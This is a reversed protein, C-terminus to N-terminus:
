PNKDNDKKVLYSKEAVYVKTIAISFALIAAIFQWFITAVDELIHFLAIQISGVGRTTEMVHGFTRFTLFITNLGYLYGTIVLTRNNVVSDSVAWTIMRLVFIVLYIILTTLDLVNWRDSFSLINCVSQILNCLSWQLLTQWLIVGCKWIRWLYLRTYTYTIMRNKENLKSNIPVLSNKLFNFNCSGSRSLLILMFFNSSLLHRFIKRSAM